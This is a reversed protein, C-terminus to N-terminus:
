RLLWQVRHRPRFDQFGIFDPMEAVTTTFRDLNCQIFRINLELSCLPFSHVPGIIKLYLTHFSRRNFFETPVVFNWHFWYDYGTSQSPPFCHREPGVPPEFLM